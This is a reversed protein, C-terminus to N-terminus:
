RRAESDPVVYPARLKITARAEALIWVLTLGIVTWAFAKPNWITVDNLVAILAFMGLLKVAYSLLAAGMMAQPSIKAAYNVAIMSISFFVVVVALGILSGFLGKTGALLLSILAAVVGALATPIAAGRFIRADSSEM